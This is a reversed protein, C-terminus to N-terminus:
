RASGTAPEPAEPSATESIPRGAARLYTVIRGPHATRLLLAVVTLSAVLNFASIAGYAAALARAVHEAPVDTVGTGSLVASLLAIRAATAAAGMSPTAGQLAMLAVAPALEVPVGAAPLVLAFAGLRLVRAVLLWPVVHTVLVRPRSLVGLGNRVNRLVHSLHRRCVIALGALGAATVAAVAAPRAPEVAEALGDATVIGTAILGTVLLGTFLAEVAAPPVLTAGLFTLRREPMRENLIAIKVADGAHAPLVANWGMGAIQALVVDRYRVRERAEPWSDCVVHFWARVRVVGALLQLLAMAVLVTWSM